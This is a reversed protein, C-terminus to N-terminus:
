SVADSWSDAAITIFGNAKSFYQYAEGVLLPTASFAILLYSPFFPSSVELISKGGAFDEHLVMTESTISLQM